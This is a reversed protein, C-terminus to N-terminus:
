KLSIIKQHDSISSKKMIKWTDKSNIADFKMQAAKRFEEDHSHRLMARWHTSSLPLTSIHIRNSVKTNIHLNIQNQTIFSEEFKMLEIMSAVHFEFIKNWKEEIWTL